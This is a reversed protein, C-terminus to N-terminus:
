ATEGRQYKLFDSVTRAYSYGYDRVPLLVEPVEVQIGMASARGLLYCMGPVEDAREQTHSLHIGATRIERVPDVMVHEYMAHGVIWSASGGFHPGFVQILEDRPFKVSSPIDDHPEHMFVPCELGSMWDWYDPHKHKFGLEGNPSEEPDHLEYWRKLHTSPLPKGEEKAKRDAHFFIAPGMAWFEFENPNPPTAISEATGLVAVSRM